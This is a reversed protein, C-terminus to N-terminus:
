PLNVPRFGFLYDNNLVIRCFVYTRGVPPPFPFNFLFFFVRLRRNTRPATTM